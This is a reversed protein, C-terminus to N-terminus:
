ESYAILRVRAVSLSTFIGFANQIASGPNALDSSSIREYLDVYDKDVRYVYIWHSGVSRFQRSTTRYTNGKFPQMMRRGFIGMSPMDDTNPSDIYIQYYSGDPDDWSVIVETTDSSWNWISGSITITEPEVRLSRIPAPITTSGKVTKGNHDFQLDYKQSEKITDNEFDFFYTGTATETLQRDNVNVKLGGIPKSLKVDDKLYVEMSYINVTLNNTGEQIYSEVIPMDTDISYDMLAEGCGALAPLILCCLILKNNLKM